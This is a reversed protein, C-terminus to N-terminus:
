QISVTGTTGLAGPLTNLVLNLYGVLMERSFGPPLQVYSSLVLETKGDPRRRVEYETVNVLFSDSTFSFRHNPQVGLVTATISVPEPGFAVVEQYQSGTNGDGSVLQSSLTGPYWSPDNELNAVYNFVTEQDVNDLLVSGEVYVVQSTDSFYSEWNNLPHVIAQAHPAIYVSTGVMAMLSLVVLSLKFSNNSQMHLEGRM